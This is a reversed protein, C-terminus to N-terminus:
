CSSHDEAGVVAARVSHAWSLSSAEGGWPGVMHGLPSPTREVTCAPTMVCDPDRFDTLNDNGDDRRNQCHPEPLGGGCQPASFCDSDAYDVAGAGDDENPDACTYEGALGRPRGELNLEAGLHHGMHALITTAADLHSMGGLTGQVTTSGRVIFPM